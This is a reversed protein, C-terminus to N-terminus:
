KILIPKIQIPKTPYKGWKLRMTKSRYSHKTMSKPLLRISKNIVSPGVNSAYRTRKKLKVYNLHLRRNVSGFRMIRNSNSALQNSKVSSFHSVSFVCHHSLCKHRFGAGFVTGSQPFEIKVDNVM